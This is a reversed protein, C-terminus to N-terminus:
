NVYTGNHILILTIFQIFLWGIIVITISTNITPKTKIVVDIDFGLCFGVLLLVVVLLVVGFLESLFVVM